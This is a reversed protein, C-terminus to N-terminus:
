FQALLAIFMSCLNDRWLKFAATFHAALLSYFLQLRHDGHCVVVSRCARSLNVSRSSSSSLKSGSQCSTAKPACIHCVPFFLYFILLAARFFLFVCLPKPDNQLLFCIGVNRSLTAAVLLRQTEKIGILHCRNLRCGCVEISDAAVAAAALGKCFVLVYKINEYHREAAIIRFHM